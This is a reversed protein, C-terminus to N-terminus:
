RGVLSGESQAPSAAQSPEHREWFCWAVLTNDVLTKRLIGSTSSLYRAVIQEQHRAVEVPAVDRYRALFLPKTSYAAHYVSVLRDRDEFSASSLPFGQIFPQNGPGPGEGHPSPGGGDSASVFTHFMTM